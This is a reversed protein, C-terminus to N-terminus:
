IKKIIQIVAGVGLGIVFTGLVLALSYLFIDGQLVM